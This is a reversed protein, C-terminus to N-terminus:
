FGPRGHRIKQSFDAASSANAAQNIHSRKKLEEFPLRQELRGWDYLMKEFSGNFLMRWDWPIQGKRQFYISTTCNSTLTHYWKPQEFIRNISEMYGDFLQRVFGPDKQLRYLYFDQGEAHKTRRWIADREDSVLYILENQRYLGQLVGYHDNKRYRVEISICLHQDNGFDFIAMPHCIYPSGWFLVLVDVAKLESLAYTRTEHRLDYDELSRYRTNRVNTVTVADGEVRMRPLRSFNPDWDRDHSPKQSFWWALLIAFAGAFLATALWFPTVLSFLLITSLLWLAGWFLGWRTQQGADYYLAGVGWLSATVCLVLVIWQWVTHM